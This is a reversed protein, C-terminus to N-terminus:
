GSETCNGYLKQVTEACNKGVIIVVKPGSKVVEFCESKLVFFPAYVCM